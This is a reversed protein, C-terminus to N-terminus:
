LCLSLSPSPSLPAHRACIISNVKLRDDAFAVNVVADGVASQRLMHSGSCWQVCGACHRAAIPARTGLPHVNRCCLCLCCCGEERPLAPCSTNAKGASKAKRQTRERKVGRETKQKTKHKQQKQTTAKPSLAHSASECDASEERGRRGAQGAQRHACEREIEKERKAARERATAM